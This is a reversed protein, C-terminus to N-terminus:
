VALYTTIYMCDTTISPDRVFHNNWITGITNPYGFNTQVISVPSILGSGLDRDFLDKCNNTDFQAFYNDFSSFVLVEGDLSLSNRSARSSAIGATAPRSSISRSILETQSTAVDRLFIDSAKNYDGAVRSEAESEFALM